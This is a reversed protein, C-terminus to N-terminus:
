AIFLLHCNQIDRLDRYRQIILPHDKMKEGKVTEELYNGFPDNGVIGIVFPADSSSFANAPWEVFQTFNFLFVAKVQNERTPFNQAGADLIICCLAFVAAAKWRAAHKRRDRHRNTTNM